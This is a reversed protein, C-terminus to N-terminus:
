ILRYKGDTGWVVDKDDKGVFGIINGRQTLTFTLRGISFIEFRFCSCDLLSIEFLSQRTTIGHLDIVDIYTNEEGYSM